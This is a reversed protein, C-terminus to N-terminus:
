KVATHNQMTIVVNKCPELVIYEQIEEYGESLETVTKSVTKQGKQQTFMEDGPEM